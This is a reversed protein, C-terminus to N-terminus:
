ALYKLCNMLNGFFGAALQGEELVVPNKWSTLAWQWEKEGNKPTRIFNGEADTYYFKDDKTKVLFNGNDTSIAQCNSVILLAM